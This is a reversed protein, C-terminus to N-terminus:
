AVETAALAEALSTTGDRVRALAADRLTGIRESRAQRALEHTGARAVILERMADSVPMVQHVGVRGRYGIGHCAACGKAAYPQWGDIQEEAFGASRLAAASHPAPTRCATCLRRVLRQATVMRLAAALNYPAVGIDILRAAAAPADNTHLTSLVLHGTQAAKVAVDATEEDRIEGVMIVDPDQRLFARLAVAFTLGAKERVSVQNIGALQIEAPDEVSCLNLSESNLLNLFCYLSLTKGSGTPGTVLVLGHPARIASDVADRQRADLGLSDLSLDTPLADLRRLVLKEGFLTPLSNVRYDEIRGPSTALRLRGDQPVRREAIDMRALVKVRTIFADRLHAPPTAIEHLVGDIRLRVRWGNEAPEIHLDSANRRTAERLTDTLLRVAPANDPDHALAAVGDTEGTRANPKNRPANESGAPLPRLLAAPQFSAQM